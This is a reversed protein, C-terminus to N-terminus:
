KEGTRHDGRQFALFEHVARLAAPDRTTIRLEGGRQLAGFEYRISKRRRRMVATGPVARAHVTASASFDGEAFQRAITQLHERIARVSASDDVDRRLEIRGGDALAEFRHTSTYQDVGMVRAGRSQLAKFASDPHSASDHRHAGPDHAQSLATRPVSSLAAFTALIAIRM